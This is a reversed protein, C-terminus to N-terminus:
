LHRSPGKAPRRKINSGGCHECEKGLMKMPYKKFCNPCYAEWNIPKEIGTKALKYIPIQCQSCVNQISYDDSMLVVNKEPSDKRLEWALAMIDLDNESLAAIDGTEKAKAKITMLAEKSPAGLRIIGQTRAVELCQRARPNRNAEEEIGGTTYILINPNQIQIVNINLGALFATADMVLIDMAQSVAM